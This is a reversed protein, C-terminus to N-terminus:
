GLLCLRTQGFASVDRDHCDACKFPSGKATRTHGDLSFGLVFHPFGEGHFDTLIGEPGRHEPHCDRCELSPDGNFLAGHLTAPDSQQTPIESHCSACRSSMGASDWFPAHCLKCERSFEAHSSYGGLPNGSVSNLEGPSFMGGGQLLTFGLVVLLTLGGAILGAPTFCGLRTNNM